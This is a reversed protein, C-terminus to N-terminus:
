ADEAKSAKELIARYAKLEAGSLGKLNLAVPLGPGDPNNPDAGGDVALPQKRNTYAAVKFAADTRVALPLARDMAVARLVDVPDRAEHGLIEIERAKADKVVNKIMFLAIGRWDCEVGQANLYVGAKTAHPTLGDPQQASTTTTPKLRKTAASKTAARQVAAAKPTLPTSRTM